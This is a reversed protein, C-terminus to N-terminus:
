YICVEYVEARDHGNTSACVVRVADTTVDGVDLVVLRHHNESVAGVTEWRDGLRAEVRLDRVLRPIERDTHSHLNRIVRDLDSNLAVRIQSIARPVDWELMLSQTGGDLPESVWCHPTGHPRAHGDTACVAPWCNQPPDVGFALNCRDVPWTPGQPGEEERITLVGLPQEDGTHLRVAANPDLLLWVNEDSVEAAVRFTVHQRDGTPVDVAGVAVEEDPIYNFGKDNRMLRWGISTAESVDAILTVTELRPGAVPLMLGRTVDLSVSSGTPPIGALQAESSATVRASRAMDDTDDNTAHVVTQDIKLLRRRLRGLAGGSSLDKPSCDGEVCLAAAVGVAQGMVAGTAIVRTSGFAVHSASALRGALFLNRVNRSYLCRYPIGYVGPAFVQYAPPEPSYIGEPPHLDLSWGGTAVTDPFQTQGLVDGETLMYDGVFRRSERKGPILGVWDLTLNEAEPFEGSNKVHDWLGYALAWLHHKIHQHDYITDLLGGYEIWWLNRGQTAGSVDRCNLIETEAIDIAFSPKIFKVRHGADKTHFFLSHCLVKRDPIEPAMQEGFEDRAERGVRFEAGSLFGVIGDGSSDLFLPSRCVYQTQDPSCFATVSRIRGDDALDVEHAATDTLLRLNPERTVWEILLPDWLVPNGEPNRYLNELILEEIVGGERAFRNYMRAHPAGLACLRVESSSNGGLVPRDQVLTVGIGERAATIAACVGALGGGVVTLDADIRITRM